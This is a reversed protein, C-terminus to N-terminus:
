QFILASLLVIKNCMLSYPWVNKPESFTFMFLISKQNVSPDFNKERDTNNPGQWSKHFVICAYNNLTCFNNFGTEFVIFGCNRNACTAHLEYKILHSSLYPNYGKPPLSFVDATELPNERKCFYIWPTTQASLIDNKFM